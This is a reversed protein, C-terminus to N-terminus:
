AAQEKRQDIRVVVLGRQHAILRLAETPQAIYRLLQFRHGLEMEEIRKRKRHFFRPDVNHDADMLVDILFAKEPGVANRWAEACM